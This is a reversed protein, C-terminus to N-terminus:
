QNAIGRRITVPSESMNFKKVVGQNDFLVTLEKKIGSESAAFINVIPIVATADASIKSLEYKWVELGDSTYTTNFPSGFAAKVEAKTTKGETIKAKVSEESESRLSENGITTCGQALIVACLIIIGTAILRTGKM